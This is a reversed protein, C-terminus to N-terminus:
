DCEQTILILDPKAAIGFKKNTFIKSCMGKDQYHVRDKKVSPSLFVLAILFVFSLVVRKMSVINQATIPLLWHGCYSCILRESM